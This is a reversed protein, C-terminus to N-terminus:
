WGILRELEEDSIPEGDVEGGGVSRYTVGTAPDFERVYEWTVVKGRITRERRERM